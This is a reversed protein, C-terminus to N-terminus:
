SLKKSHKFVPFSLSFNGDFVTGSSVAHWFGRSGSSEEMPNEETLAKRNSRNRDSNKRSDGRRGHRRRTAATVGHDSALCGTGFFPLFLGFRGGLPLCEGISGGLSLEGEVLPLEGFGAHGKGGGLAFPNELAGQLVVTELGKVVEDLLM